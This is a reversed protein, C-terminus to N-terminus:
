DHPIARSSCSLLDKYVDLYRSAVTRLRFQRQIRLRGACGMRVRLEPDRLLQVVRDAFAESAAPPVLFGTEGDIVVEPNGGVSTVVVPLGHDMSELLTLSLGESLSTLVSVDMAAYWPSIDKHFGAFIVYAEIGLARTQQRLAGEQPNSGLVLFRAQPVRQVIAPVAELFYSAGKVTRNLNAVMGVVLQGDTLGIQRRVTWRASPAAEGADVGNRIVVIRSPDIGEKDRVVQGVADSVCIVRDPIARTWRLIAYDSAGWNFGEDERNEVLVRVRGLRKLLRGYLIPWFFYTHVIDPAVRAVYRSLEIFRRTQGFPYVDLWHPPSLVEVPVTPTVREIPSQAVRSVIRVDRSPSALHRAVSLMHNGTGGGLDDTIVLIRL